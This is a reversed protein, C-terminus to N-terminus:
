SKVHRTNDSIQRKQAQGSAFKAFPYSSFVKLYLASIKHPAKAYCVVKLNKKKKSEVMIIAMGVEWVM